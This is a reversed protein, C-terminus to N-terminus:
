LYMIQVRPNIKLFVSTVFVPVTYYIDVHITCGPEDIVAEETAFGYKLSGPHVTGTSM